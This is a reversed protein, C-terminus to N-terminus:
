IRHDALVSWEAESDFSRLGRRTPPQSGSELGFRSSSCKSSEVTSPAPGIVGYPLRALHAERGRKELSLVHINLRIGRTLIEHLQGGADHGGIDTLICQIRGSQRLKNGGYM